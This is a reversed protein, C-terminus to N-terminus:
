QQAPEGETMEPAEESYESNPVVPQNGCNCGGTACGGPGCAGGSCNSPCASDCPSCAGCHSNSGARGCGCNCDAVPSDYDHCSSCSRCGGGALALTSGLALSLLLHRLMRSLGERAFCAANIATHYRGAAHRSRMTYWVM